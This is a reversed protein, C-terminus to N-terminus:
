GPPATIQDVHQVTVEPNFMAMLEEVCVCFCMETSLACCVRTIEAM